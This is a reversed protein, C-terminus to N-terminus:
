PRGDDADVLVTYTGPPVDTAVVINGNSLVTLGAPATGGVRAFTLADGDPDSAYPAISTVSGQFIQLASGPPTWVPERNALVGTPNRSDLIGSVGNITLNQAVLTIPV